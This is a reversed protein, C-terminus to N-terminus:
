IEPPAYRDSDTKQRRWRSNQIRCSIELNRASREPAVAISYQKIALPIANAIM